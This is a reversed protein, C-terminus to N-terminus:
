KSDNNEPHRQPHIHTGLNEGATEKNNGNVKRFINVEIQFAVSGYCGSYRISALTNIFLNM